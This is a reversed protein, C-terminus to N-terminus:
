PEMLEEKYGVTITGDYGRRVTYIGEERAWQYVEVSRYNRKIHPPCLVLIVDLATTEKGADELRKIVSRTSIKDALKVLKYQM